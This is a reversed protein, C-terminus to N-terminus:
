SPGRRCLQALCPERDGRRRQRGTEKDGLREATAAGYGTKVLISRCGSRRATEIDAEKDGVLYSQKLDIHLDRSASLVMGPNPKRCECEKRYKEVSATPLHPCYYFRDIRAGLDQLQRQLAAHITGLEEEDLLGRAVGSQNTVVVVLRGSRNLLRIAQAAFPYLEIDEVRRLYDADRIITGDRDLFVALRPLSASSRDREQFPISPM